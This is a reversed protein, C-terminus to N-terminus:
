VRGRPSPPRRPPQVRRLLRSPAESLATEPWGMLEIEACYHVLSPVDPLGVYPPLIGRVRLEAGAPQLAWPPHHLETQHVLGGPQPKLLVFRDVLFSALSGRLAPTPAGTPGYRGTLELPLVEDPSEADFFVIDGYRDMTIRSRECPVGLGWRSLAFWTWSSLHAHLLTIGTTRGSRAYTYVFVARAGGLAPAGRLRVESLECALVTVWAQGAFTDLALPVLGALHRYPVSWHALLADRLTTRWRWPGTPLPRIAPAPLRM